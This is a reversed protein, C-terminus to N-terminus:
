GHRDAVQRHRPQTLELVDSFNPRAFEGFEARAASDYAMAAERETAFTGLYVRQGRIGIQARWPKGRKERYVGKYISFTPRRPKEKNACNQSATCLRLNERRNDLTNRNAHDVQVGPPANLIFRHLYVRRAKVMGGVGTGMVRWSYPAIKEYDAADVLVEQGSPLRIIKVSPCSSPVTPNAM